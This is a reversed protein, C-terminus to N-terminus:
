LKNIWEAVLTAKEEKSTKIYKWFSSETKHGTMTMVFAVPCGLKLLNTAGSRRATHSSVM